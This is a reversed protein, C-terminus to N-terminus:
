SYFVFRIQNDKHHFRRPHWLTSRSRYQLVRSNLQTGLSNSYMTMLNSASIQIMFKLQSKVLYFSCESVETLFQSNSKRRIQHRQRLTQISKFQVKRLSINLVLCHTNSNSKSQLLHRRLQPGILSFILSLKYM